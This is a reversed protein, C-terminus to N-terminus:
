IGKYKDFIRKSERKIGEPANKGRTPTGELDNEAHAKLIRRNM